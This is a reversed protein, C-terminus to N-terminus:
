LVAPKRRNIDSASASVAQPPTPGGVASNDSTSTGSEVSKQMLKMLIAAIATIGGIFDTLDLKIFTGQRLCLTHWVDLIVLFHFCGTLAILIVLIRMTSPNGKDDSLVDKIFGAFNMLNSM